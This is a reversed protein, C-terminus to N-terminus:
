DVCQGDERTAFEIFAYCLSDGTKWDKIVECSKIEGFRSFIIELDEATTVPNLKCVFLVTDPPKVEDDPIDQLIKLVDERSAAEKAQREEEIEELSREDPKGIKEAEEEDLLNDWQEKPPVPSADPIHEELGKPDDFPDDLIITHKIRVVQLPKGDADAYAENIRDLTDFGESVEGFITHKGDLQPLEDGTTIFFQSGNLNPGANAMSLLGKKNHILHPKIEDPIYKAQEGYLVGYISEGGKGTNTPDGTQVIYDRQINHFLCNNYYKIKCLKLFNKATEPTETVYLDVTLEGLSTELIVAM